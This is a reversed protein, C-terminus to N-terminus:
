KRDECQPGVYTPPCTCTNPADCTGGNMCAPLCIAPISSIFTSATLPHCSCAKLRYDM